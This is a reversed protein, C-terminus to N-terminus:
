FGIIISENVSFEIRDENKSAAAQRGSRSRIPGGPRSQGLGAVSTEKKFNLVRM